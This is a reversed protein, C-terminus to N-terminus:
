DQPLNPYEVWRVAERVLHYLRGDNSIAYTEKGEFMVRDIYRKAKVPKMGNTAMAVDFGLQFFHEVALRFSHETDRDPPMPWKELEIKFLNQLEKPADEISKM